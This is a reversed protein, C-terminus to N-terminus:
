ASHLKVFVGKCIQKEVENIVKQLSGFSRATFLHEEKPKSAVANLQKLDLYPGIGVAMVCVDMDHLAKAADTVNDKSKGDTLVVLVRPVGPRSHKFLENDIEQLGKGLFTGQSPYTVSNIAQPM